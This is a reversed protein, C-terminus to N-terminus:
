GSSRTLPRGAVLDAKAQKADIQSAYPGAVISGDRLEISYGGDYDRTVNSVIRLDRFRYNGTARIEDDIDSPPPVESADPDNLDTVPITTAELEDVAPPPPGPLEVGDERYHIEEGTM